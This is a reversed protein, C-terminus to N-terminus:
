YSWIAPSPFNPAQDLHIFRSSGSQAVGIRKIGNKLATEILDLAQGRSVAIDCAWGTTHAGKVKKSKELDHEVCRYGSSIILPFGDGPLEDRIRDMTASFEPQIGAEGCHQCRFEDEHFWKM